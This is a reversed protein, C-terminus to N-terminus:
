SIKRNWVPCVIFRFKMFHNHQCLKESTLDVFFSIIRIYAVPQNSASAIKIHYKRRDYKQFFCSDCRFIEPCVAVSIDFKQQICPSIQLSIIWSNIIKVIAHILQFVSIGPIRDHIFQKSPAIDLTKYKMSKIIEGRQLFTKYFRHFFASILNFKKKCIIFTIGICILYPSFSIGSFITVRILCFPFFM